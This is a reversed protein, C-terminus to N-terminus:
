AGYDVYESAQCTSLDSESQHGGCHRVTNTTHSLYFQQYTM